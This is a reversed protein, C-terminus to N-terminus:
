VPQVTQLNTGPELGPVPALFNSSYLYLAVGGVCLCVVTFIVGGARDLDARETPTEDSTRFARLVWFVGLVALAFCILSLFLMVGCYLKSPRCNLRISRLRVAGGLADADGPLVTM